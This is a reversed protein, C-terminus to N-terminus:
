GGALLHIVSVDDGDHIVAKEYDEKNIIEGNIKVILSRFTFRKIDLLEQVTLKDYGEIEEPRNNLTIRM